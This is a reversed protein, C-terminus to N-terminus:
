PAKSSVELPRCVREDVLRNLATTLASTIYRITNPRTLESRLGALLHEHVVNSRVTLRNDCAVLGNRHSRSCGYRVEGPRGYIVTVAGDCIGCRLFGVFLWEPRADAYAARGTVSSHGSPGSAVIGGEFIARQRLRRVDHRGAPGKQSKLAIKTSPFARLTRPIPYAQHKVCLHDADSPAM